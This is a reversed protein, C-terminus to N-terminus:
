TDSVWNAGNWRISGAWAAGDWYRQHYPDGPSPFWGPAWQPAPAGAPASPTFAPAALTTAGAGVAPAVSSRMAPLPALEATAVATRMAPLPAPEPAAAHFPTLPPLAAPGSTVPAPATAASYPTSRTSMPPEWGMPAYSPASKRRRRVLLVVVVILVVVGGAILGLVLPTAWTSLAVGTPPIAQYQALSTTMLNATSASLSDDEILVYVNAREFTEASAIVAAGSRVVPVCTVISSGPISPDTTAQEPAAGTRGECFGTALTPVSMAAQAGSLGILTDVVVDTSSPQEWADIATSISVSLSKALQNEIAQLVAQYLQLAQPSVQSWGAGPGPIMHAALNSNGVPSAGAPAAGLAATVCVIGAMGTAALRAMRTGRAKVNARGCTVAHTRGVAPETRSDYREPM